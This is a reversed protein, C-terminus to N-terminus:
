ALSLHGSLKLCYTRTYNKRYGASTFVLYFCKKKNLKLGWMECFEEIKNISKQLQIQIIKLSSHTFWIGLDDAFIAKMADNPIVDCHCTVSSYTLYRPPSAAEKHYM